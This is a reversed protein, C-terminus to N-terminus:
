GRAEGEDVTDSIGSQLQHQIFEQKKGMIMQLQATQWQYDTNLKQIIKDYLSMKKSLNTSYEQLTNQKKQLADSLEAQYESIDLGIRQAEKQIESTYRTMENNFVQVKNSLESQHESLITNARNLEQAAVQLTSAVMDEDEDELWSQASLVTGDDEIEASEDILYQAKDLPDQLASSPFTVTTFTPMTVTQSFNTPLAQTLGSISLDVDGIADFVTTDADLDTPLKSMFNSLREILMCEAAHLVVLEKAWAPFREVSVFSAGNYAFGSVKITENNDDITLGESHVVIQAFAKNDSTEQPFIDLIGTGTIVYVPDHYTAFYISKPDKAKQFMKEDIPRAWYSVAGQQKDVSLLEFVSRDVFCDEITANGSNISIAFQPLMAPNYKKICSLTYDVGRTLADAVDGTTDTTYNRIRTTFSM